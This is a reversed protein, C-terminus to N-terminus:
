TALIIEKWSHHIISQLLKCYAAVKQLDRYSESITPYRAVLMATRAHVSRPWVNVSLLDLFFMKQPGQVSPYM